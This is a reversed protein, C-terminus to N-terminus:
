EDLIRKREREYEDQTIAGADFASKLDILQQGKSVTTNTVATESKAGGGGCAAVVMPFMLVLGIGVVRFFRM